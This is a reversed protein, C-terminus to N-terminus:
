NGSAERRKGIAEGLMEDSRDILRARGLEEGLMAGYAWGEIRRYLDAGKRVTLQLCGRYEDVLNKRNTKANHRKITPKQFESAPVGTLQSWWETAAEVDASEHIHLRARLRERSVGAVELFRLFFMILAPDSNIFSVKEARRYIKDKAGECWYVLAGILLTERESLEGAERCAALKTEQREAERALHFPEWRSKWMAAVREQHQGPRPPAPVDRLWLSCTSIAIDLSGAIERYTWGQRRLEVAKPKLKDRIEDSM